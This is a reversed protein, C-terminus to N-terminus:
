SGSSSRPFIQITADLRRTPPASFPSNTTHSIRPALNVVFSLPVNAVPSRRQEGFSSLQLSCVLKRVTGTNGAGAGGRDLGRPGSGTTFPKILTRRRFPFPHLRFYHVAKLDLRPSAKAYVKPSRHGHRIDSSTSRSITKKMSAIPTLSITHM